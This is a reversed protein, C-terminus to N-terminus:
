DDSVYFEHTSSDVAVSQPRNFGGDTYSDGGVHYISVGTPTFSEVWFSFPRCAYVNHTSSDVALDWVIFGPEGWKLIFTGNSDFKQIRNNWTDAVYVEHTASDVAIGRPRYFQGDASGQRGGWKLLFTYVM